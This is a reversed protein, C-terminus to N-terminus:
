GLRYGAPVVPAPVQELSRTMVGGTGPRLTFGHRELAAALARDEDSRSLDVGYTYLAVPPDGAEVSARALGAIVGLMEDLLDDEAHGPAVFVNFGGFARLYTWGVIRGADDEWIRIDLSLARHTYYRTLWALDGVRLSTIQYAQAVAAQM